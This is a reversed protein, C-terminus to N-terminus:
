IEILVRCICYINAIVFICFEQVKYIKIIVLRACVPFFCYLTIAIHLIFDPYLRKHFDAEARSLKRKGLKLNVKLIMLGVLDFLPYLHVFVLLFGGFRPFSSLQFSVMLLIVVKINLM